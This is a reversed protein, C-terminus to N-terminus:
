NPTTPLFISTLNNTVWVTVPLVVPNGLPAGTPSTVNITVTGLNTQGLPLGGYNIRIDPTSDGSGSNPSVTVRGNTTSTTWNNAGTTISIPFDYTGASAQQVIINVSQPSIAFAPLPHSTRAPNLKYMPWDADDASGALDWAYMISNNVVLELLGDNDIDGVAPTNLLTGGTIYLPDPTPFYSATIQDGDGDVVTVIWGQTFIIEMDTDGDYDALVFGTGVDFPSSPVGTQDVPLMPFGPVVSGDLHWAYLLRNNRNGNNRHAAIIIEPEGDGTIDGISPTSPMPGTTPRGGVWGPLPNGFQDYAFVRFGSTPNSPSNNHYFSGTGVFIEMIGDNNVDAVAPASQIHEYIYKPFGPLINGSGDLAYLSGGCYNGFPSIYPCDWTGDEFFGEDSGIVIDLVGNGTLDALAPASWITDALHDILNSWGFISYLHSDAPFGSVLVGNHHWAMIRKDFGGTVIEMDGDGDIDGVSPTGYISERCGAPPVEGNESFKPWGAQVNGNHDLVVVGGQTCISSNITGVGITIEVRGDNDIDAVAPSSHIVQTGSAMNFIPALDKNWLVTGNNRVVIVRGNNTATVIDPIGDNDVDIITPSPRHCESAGSDSCSANPLTRQWKPPIVGNVEAQTPHNIALFLAIFGIFLFVIKSLQKMFVREGLTLKRCDTNENYSTQKNPPIPSNPSLVLALMRKM